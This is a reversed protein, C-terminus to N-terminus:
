DKRGKCYPEGAGLMDKYKHGLQDATTIAAYVTDANIFMPESDWYSKMSHKAIAMMNEPTNEIYLDELTVPLGVDICFTYIENLVEEPSNEIVLQCLVGFGVKEGHFTKRDEPLVSIGECISHSGACANNEVGLGSLLTNTEIIDELAESVVHKKASELAKRGNEMLVDYCAEATAVGAKTRRYGGAVYNPSDSRQNARAEFVTSLADGMGSILFRVPADAIIQSDVLVIDPNKPYMRACLHEGEESYMVSLAITPADTSASTPVVIIPIKCIDAVAKATDITKGGGIAVIVNPNIRKAEEAAKEVREDTVESNFIQTEINSNTKAFDEKLLKSMSEFFFQDIIAFANEGYMGTYKSLERILNPGQFYRSPSGWARVTKEVKGM